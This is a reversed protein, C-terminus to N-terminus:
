MKTYPRISLLFLEFLSSLTPGSCGSSRGLVKKPDVQIVMIGDLNPQLCIKKDNILFIVYYM